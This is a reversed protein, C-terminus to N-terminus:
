KFLNKNIYNYDFKYHEILYEYHTTTNSDKNKHFIFRRTLKNYLCIDSKKYESNLKGQLTFINCPVFPIKSIINKFGLIKDYAVYIILDILFYSILSNYKKWYFLFAYYSYTALFSNKTAAMYNGSFLCNIFPINYTWCYNLKLTYFPTDVKSIPTTVFYTSDIWYGGHQFLLTFRVIDSFHVLNFTGNNFKEMIYYPLKVYKDINDKTIIIVPHKGRNEILSQFCSLVIPPATEIGQYWMTWIPCDDDINKEKKLLYEYKNVISEFDKQVDKETFPKQYPEIKEVEKEIEEQIIYNSNNNKNFNLKTLILLIMIYFTKYILNHKKYKKYKKNKKNKKHKKM